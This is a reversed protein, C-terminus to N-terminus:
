PDFDPPANFSVFSITDPLRRVEYGEEFGGQAKAVQEWLRRPVPSRYLQSWLFEELFYAISDGGRNGLELCFHSVKKAFWVQESLLNGSLGGM